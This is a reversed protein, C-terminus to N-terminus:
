KSTFIARGGQSCCILSQTHSIGTPTFATSVPRPGLKLPRDLLPRAVAQLPAPGPPLVQLQSLLRAADLPGVAARHAILRHLPSGILDACQTRAVVVQFNLHGMFL